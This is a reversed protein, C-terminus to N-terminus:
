SQAMKYYVHQAYQYEPYADRLFQSVETVFAASEQWPWFYLGVNPDLFWCGGGNPRASTRIGLAHGGDGRSPRLLVLYVGRLITLRVIENEYADLDFALKDVPKVGHLDLHGESGGSRWSHVVASDALALEHPAGLDSADLVVKGEITKHIWNLVISSCVGPSFKGG